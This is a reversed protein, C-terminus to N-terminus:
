LSRHDKVGVVIDMQVVDEVIKESIDCHCYEFHGIMKSELWLIWKFDDKVCVDEVIKESIDSENGPNYRFRFQSNVVSIRLM